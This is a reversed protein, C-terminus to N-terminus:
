WVGSGGATHRNRAKLGRREELLGKLALAIPFGYRNGKDGHVTFTASGLVAASAAQRGAQAPAAEHGEHEQPSVSVQGSHGFPPEGREGRFGRM